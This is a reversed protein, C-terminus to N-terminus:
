SERTIITDQRASPLADVVEVEYVSLFDYFSKISEAPVTARLLWPPVESLEGRKQQMEEVAIGLQHGLATRFPELAFARDLSFVYQPKDSGLLEMVM